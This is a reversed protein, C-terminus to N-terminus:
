MENVSACCTCTDHLCHIPLNSVVNWGFIDSVPQVFCDSCNIREVFWDTRSRVWWWMTMMKGIMADENDIATVSQVRHFKCSCAPFGQPSMHIAKLVVISPTVRPYTSHYCRIQPTNVKDGVVKM